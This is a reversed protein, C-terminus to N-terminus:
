CRISPRTGPPTAPPSQPREPSRGRWRSWPRMTWTRRSPPWNDHRATGFQERDGADAATVALLYALYGHAATELVGDLLVQARQAWSRPWRWTGAPWGAGLRTRRGEDGGAGPRHAASAHAGTRQDTRIRPRAGPALGGLRVRCSRRHRPDAGRRGRSFSEYSTRWDNRRYATRAVVLLQTRDDAM